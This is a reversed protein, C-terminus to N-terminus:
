KISELHLLIPFHDSYNEKDPRGLNNKLQIGDFETIIEVHSYFPLCNKRLMVQDFMHWDHSIQATKRYYFTGPPGSTEDGFLNWMPNYFFPYEKEQVTRTGKRKSVTNRDSIAHFGNAAVVGDEFPNMNFDGCLITRDNKYDLERERITGAVDIAQALQDSREFNNKGVLHVSAILFEIQDFIVSVMSLRSSLDGYRVFTKLNDRHFIQIKPTITDPSLFKATNNFKLVKIMEDSNLKSEALCIFDVNKSKVLRALVDPALDGQTNWFLLCFSSM